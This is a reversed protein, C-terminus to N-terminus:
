RITTDVVRAPRILNVTTTGSKIQSKSRVHLERGGPARGETEDEVFRVTRWFFHFVLVAVGVWALPRSLSEEPAVLVGIAGCLGVMKAFEYITTVVIRRWRSRVVITM